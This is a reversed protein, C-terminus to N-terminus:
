DTTIWSESPENVVSMIAWGTATVLELNIVAIGTGGCYVTDGAGSDGITDSDAADITVKGTGTKVFRLHAGIDGAAVSLLTFTKDSASNMILTKGLDGVLVQYNDTKTASSNMAGILTTFSGAAPTTGGVVGDFTGKAIIDEFTQEGIWTHAKKLSLKACPPFGFSIVPALFLICFAIITFIKKNM